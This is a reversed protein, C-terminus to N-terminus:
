QDLSRILLLPRNVRHLVGAAVSGYFVQSLGSRGHSAMAILDANKQEAFNIIEEVIPGHGVQLEAEMGKERFKGRQAALYAEIEDTLQMYEQEDFQPYLGAYPVIIPKQEVVGLFIVKCGYHQALSEVHPLIAEARQSGDLPVLITNYM